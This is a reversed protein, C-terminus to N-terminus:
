GFREPQKELYNGNIIKLVSTLYTKKKL